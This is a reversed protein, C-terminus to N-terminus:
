YKRNFIESYVVARRANDTDRLQIDIVQHNSVTDDFNDFVELQNLLHEKNHASMDIKQYAAAKKEFYDAEVSDIPQLNSVTQWAPKVTEPEDDYSDEEEDEQLIEPFNEANTDFPAFVKKQSDSSKRIKSVISIVIFGIFILVKIIDSPSDM